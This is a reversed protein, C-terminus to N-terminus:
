AVKERTKHAEIWAQVERESWRASKTGIPYYPKPFDKEAMLFYVYSSTFGIQRAVDKIKLFRDPVPQVHGDVTTFTM